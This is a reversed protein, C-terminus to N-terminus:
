DNNDNQYRPFACVINGTSECSGVPLGWKKRCMVFGANTVPMRGATATTHMHSGFDGDDLARGQFHAHVPHWQMVEVSARGYVIGAARAAITRTM